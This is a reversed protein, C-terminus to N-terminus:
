NPSGVRAPSGPPELSLSALRRTLSLSHPQIASDEHALTYAPWDSQIPHELPGFIVDDAEIMVFRKLLEVDQDRMLSVQLRLVGRAIYYSQSQDKIGKICLLLTSRLAEMISPDENTNIAEVTLQSLSGLFHTLFSDLASFGHRLYYLRLTTEFYVLSDLYAERPTMAPLTVGQNRNGWDYNVIPKLLAILLIHYHMHLKLQHPMVIRRPSLPEPLNRLWATMRNYFGLIQDVSLKRPLNSNSPGVQVLTIGNAISWLDAKAKFLLGHYTPLRSQTSPYKVYTESYFQPCQIPDPLSSEPPEKMLPVRFYHHCVVSQWGFFVWATFDRVSRVDQGIDPRTARFLQIENAMDLARLTYRWGVRDFGNFADILNLLLASQILVLRRQEWQNSKQRSNPNDPQEPPRETEAEIEFLRKAEALFQYGLNKPNWYESRYQLGRHCYCGVCLVTNVLVKSCFRPRGHAMDELFYDKQFFTFWDHDYLLYDHLLKRMLNDDSSVSTWKSPKVVDLWPSVITASQYPRMYAIREPDEGPSAPPEPTADTPSASSSTSGADDLLRRRQSPPPESTNVPTPAALPAAEYVESDLYQNGPHRLYAPMDSMYPFDYRFRAEPVLALQVLVDGYNVHRLINAADAGRRIRQFVERAEHDPRSQLVDYIQEFTSKQSQLEGFKRKLAQAHTEAANTDFECETGREKCISCRPRIGDCKSKRRRCASCAATTAQRKRRKSSTAYNPDSSTFLSAANIPDGHGHSHAYSDGDVSGNGSVSGRGNPRGVAPAPASVPAPIEPPSLRTEGPGAAPLLRRLPGAPQQGNPAPVQFSSFSSSSPSSSSALAPKM